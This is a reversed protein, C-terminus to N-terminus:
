HKVGTGLTTLVRHLHDGGFERSCLNVKEVFHKTRPISLQGLVSSLTKREREVVRQPTRLIVSHEQHYGSLGWMGMHYTDCM